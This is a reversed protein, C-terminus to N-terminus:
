PNATPDVSRLGDLDRVRPADSRVDHTLEGRGEFLLLLAQEVRFPHCLACPLQLRRRCRKLAELVGGGRPLLGKPVAYTVQGRFDTM